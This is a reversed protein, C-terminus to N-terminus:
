RATARRRPRPAPRRRRCPSGARSCCSRGSCSSGRRPPSASRCCRRRCGRCGTIAGTCRRTGRASGPRGPRARRRPPGAPARRGTGRARRRAAASGPPSCRCSTTRTRTRPCRVACRRQRGSRRGQMAAPGSVNGAWPRRAGAAATRAADRDRVIGRAPVEPPLEALVLVQPQAVVHVPGRVVEIRQEAARPGCPSGHMGGVRSSTSGCRRAASAAASASAASRSVM